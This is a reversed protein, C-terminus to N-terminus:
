RILLSQYKLFKFLIILKNINHCLELDTLSCHIKFYIDYIKNIPIRFHSLRTDRKKVKFVIKSYYFINALFMSAFKLLMKKAFM